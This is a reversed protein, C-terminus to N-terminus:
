MIARKKVIFPARVDDFSGGLALAAYYHELASADDFGMLKRRVADAFLDTVGRFGVRLQKQDRRDRAAAPQERAYADPHHRKLWALHRDMDREWDSSTYVTHLSLKIDALLLQTAGAADAFSRRPDAALRPNLAPALAYLPQLWSERLTFRLPTDRIDLAVHLSTLAPLKAAALECARQFSAEYKDKWPTDHVYQPDGYSQHALHLARVHQLSSEPVTTLFYILRASDQFYFTTGGYMFSVTEEHVKKNTVSLASWSARWNTQDKAALAQKASKVTCRLRRARKGSADPAINSDGRLARQATAAMFEVYAGGEYVYRYIQNRLEGPISFFLNKNTRPLRLPTPLAVKGLQYSAREINKVRTTVTVTNAPTAPQRYRLHPPIFTGQAQQLAPGAHSQGPPKSKAAGNKGAAGQKQKNSRVNRRHSNQNKGHAGHSQDAPAM